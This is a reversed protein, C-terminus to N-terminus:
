IFQYLIVSTNFLAAVHVSKQWRTCPGQLRVRLRVRIKEFCIKLLINKESFIGLYINKLAIEFIHTWIINKLDNKNKSPQLINFNEFWSVKREM